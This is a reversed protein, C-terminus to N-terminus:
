VFFRTFDIDGEGPPLVPRLKSWDMYGAGWDAVHFHPVLDNEWLYDAEYAEDLLNHFTLHRVDVTVKMASKYTEYLKKMHVLPNYTNCVVSEVTLVLNYRGAIELLSAYTKINVEINKDSAPGSWLHLVLLKASLGAAIECNLKFIRLAEGMDGNENRSILDGIYKDTHVTVFNLKYPPLRSIIENTKEESNWMGEVMFEFGDCNIKKSYEPILGYDFGSRRGIITGTSCLIKNNKLM